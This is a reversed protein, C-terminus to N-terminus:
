KALSLIRLRILFLCVVRCAYLGKDTQNNVEGKSVCAYKWVCGRRILSVHVILQLWVYCRVDKAQSFFDDRDPNNTKQTQIM